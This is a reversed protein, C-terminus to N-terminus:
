IDISSKSLSLLFLNVKSFIEFVDNEFRPYTCLVKDNDLKICKGHFVNKCAGCLLVPQHLFVFKDCSFCRKRNQINPLSILPLKSVSGGETM